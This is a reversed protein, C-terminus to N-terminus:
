ANATIAQKAALDHRREAVTTRIRDAVDPMEALMADFERRPIVEMLVPTTTRVTATRPQHDVLAMEGFYDGAGLTAVLQGHRRVEVEGELMIVFEYGQKGEQVLVAGPPANLPTALTSVLRLEKRSLGQFLPVEALREDIWAHRTM